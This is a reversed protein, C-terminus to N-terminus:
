HYCDLIANFLVSCFLVPLCYLLSCFLGPDSIVCLCSSQIGLMGYTQRVACSVSYGLQQKTRLQDFFPETLCQELLELLTLQHM